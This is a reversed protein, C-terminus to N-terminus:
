IGIKVVRSFIMEFNLKERGLTWIAKWILKCVQSTDWLRTTSRFFGRSVHFANKVFIGFNGEEHELTTENSIELYSHCKEFLIESKDRMLNLFKSHLKSLVTLKKWSWKRLTKSLLGIKKQQFESFSQQFGEMQCTCNSKSLGPSVNWSVTWNKRFNIREGSFFQEFLNGLCM